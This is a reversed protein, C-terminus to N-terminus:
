YPGIYLIQASPGEHYTELLVRKIADIGKKQLAQQKAQEVMEETIFEPTLIMATWKWADQNASPFADVDDAWWLSELPMVKYDIQQQFKVAFKLTYAVSYLAGIAAAYEEGGPAGAGDLWLFKLPPVDVTTVEKKSPNYLHKLQKILDLKEM